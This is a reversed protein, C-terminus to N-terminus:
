NSRSDRAARAQRVAEQEDPTLTSLDAGWAEAADATDAINDEHARRVAADRDAQTRRKPPM